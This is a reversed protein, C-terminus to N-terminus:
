FPVDNDDQEATSETADKKPRPESFAISMFSRGDDRKKIWASMSKQVGEVEATGTYDPHKEEKKYDNKFLVGRNNNDYQSM